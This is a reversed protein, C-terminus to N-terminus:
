QVQLKLLTEKTHSQKKKFDIIIFQFKGTYVIMKSTKLGTLPLIARQNWFRNKLHLLVPSYRIYIWQEKNYKYQGKGPVM